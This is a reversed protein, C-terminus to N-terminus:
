SYQLTKSVLGYITATGKTPHSLGTLMSILTTKGAGNHGLIATIQGEYIDLTLGTFYLLIFVHIWENSCSMFWSCVNLLRRNWTLYPFKWTIWIKGLQRLIFDPIVVPIELGRNHYLIKDRQVSYTSKCRAHHPSRVCFCYGSSHWRDTQQYVHKYTMPWLVMTQQGIHHVPKVTLLFVIQCPSDLERFVHHHGSRLEAGQNSGHM